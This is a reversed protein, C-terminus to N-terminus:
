RIAAVLLCGEWGGRVQQQRPRRQAPPARVGCRCFGHLRSGDGGTLTFSFEEPRMYERPQFNEAGLPFCFSLLNEPAPGRWSRDPDFRCCIYARPRPAGEVRAVFCTKFM